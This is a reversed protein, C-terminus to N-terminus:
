AGLSCRSTWPPAAVVAACPQAKLLTIRRTLNLSARGLVLEDIDHFHHRQLANPIQWDNLISCKM